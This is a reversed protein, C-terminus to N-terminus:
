VMPPLSKPRNLLKLYLTIIMHSFLRIPRLLYYLFYFPRPLPLFLRDKCTPKILRRLPTLGHYFFCRICYHIQDSFCEICRFQFILKKSNLTKTLAYNGSLLQRYVQRALHEVEPDAEIRALVSKPLTVSLVNQALLLGLLLMREIEVTRAIELLHEWDMEPCIRILEAIDCLWALREWLSKAGHVCLYLLLDEPCLSLLHSQSSVPILRQQLYKFNFPYSLFVGGTLEQHLDVSFQENKHILSCECHAQLYTAEEEDTLFHSPKPQQYDGNAILLDRAKLFDQKPVLLDLDDFQRLAVNGYVFLALAAGKFSIAPIQYQKLLDVLRIVERTLSLNRLANDQFLDYLQALFDTSIRDSNIVSLSKYLLPVVRHGIALRLLYDWDIDRQLLTQIHETIESDLYTRACCFLLEIETSTEIKPPTVLLKFRVPKLVTKM